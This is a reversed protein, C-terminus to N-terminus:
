CSRYFTFQGTLKPVVANYHTEHENIVYLTNKRFKFDNPPRHYFVGLRMKLEKELISTIIWVDLEFAWHHKETIDKALANRFQNLTMRKGQKRYNRVFWSPYSEFISDLVDDDYERIRQHMGSVVNYDKHKVMRLAIGRRLMLVFNDESNREQIDFQLSSDMWVKRLIRRPLNASKGFAANFLSRYFCSGDGLVRVINYTRVVM